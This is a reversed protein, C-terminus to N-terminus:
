QEWSRERDAGHVVLPRLLETEDALGRREDGGDGVLTALLQQVGAHADRVDELLVDAHTTNDAQEPELAAQRWPRGLKDLHDEHEGSVM